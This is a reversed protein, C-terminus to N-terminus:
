WNYARVQSAFNLMLNQGTNVGIFCEDFHWTEGAGVSAAQQLPEFRVETATAPAVDSVTVLTWTAATPTVATGQTTSIVTHASTAWQLNVRFTNSANPSYVWYYSDYYLGATIGTVVLQPAADAAGATDTVLMSATGSFAQATSRAFTCNVNSAWNGASTELGSDNASILNVGYAM